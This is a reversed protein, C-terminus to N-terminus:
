MESNWFTMIKTKWCKLRKFNWCKLKEANKTIEANWLKLMNTNLNKLKQFNDFKLQDVNLLKIMEAIWCKRMEAYKMTKEDKSLYQNVQVDRIGWRQLLGVSWGVVWIYLRDLNQWDNGPTWCNILYHCCQKYFLGQSM